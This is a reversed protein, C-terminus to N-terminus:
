HWQVTYQVVTLITFKIHCLKVVIEFCKRFIVVFEWLSKRSYLSYTWIAKCVRIGGPGTDRGAEARHVKEAEKRRGLQVVAGGAPCICAAREWTQLYKGRQWSCKDELETCPRSRARGVSASFATLVAPSTHAIVSVLQQGRGVKAGMQLAPIIVSRSM